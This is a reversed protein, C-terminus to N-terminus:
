SLGSNGAQVVTITASGTGSNVVLRVGAPIYGYNGQQNTTAGVLAPDPHSFWNLAADGFPNDLTQQVTYNVTGSVVVQLSVEPRGNRDLPIVVTSGVGTQTLQVPRM